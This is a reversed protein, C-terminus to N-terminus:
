RIFRSSGARALDALKSAMEVVGTATPYFAAYAAECLPLTSTPNGFHSWSPPEFMLTRSLDRRMGLPSWFGSSAKYFRYGRRPQCEPKMTVNIGVPIGRLPWSRVFSGQPRLNM